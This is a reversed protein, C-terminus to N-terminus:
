FTLMASSGVQTHVVDGQQLERMLRVQRIQFPEYFEHEDERIWGYAEIFSLGLKNGGQATRWALPRKTYTDYLDNERSPESLRLNIHFVRPVRWQIPHQM